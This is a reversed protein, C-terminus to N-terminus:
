IDDKKTATLIQKISQQKDDEILTGNEELDDEAKSKFKETINSAEVSNIISKSTQELQSSFIISKALNLYASYNTSVM